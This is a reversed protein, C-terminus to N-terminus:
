FHISEDKKVGQDGTRMFMEYKTLWPGEGCFRSNLTSSLRVYGM